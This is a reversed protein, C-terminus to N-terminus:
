RRTFRVGIRRLLIGFALAALASGAFPTAATGTRPLGSTSPSLAAQAGPVAPGAASAARTMEASPAPAPVPIPLAIGPQEGIGSSAATTIAAIPNLMQIAEVAPAVRAVEAAGSTINGVTGGSATLCSVSLVGAANLACLPSKGLQEDTGIETGNVKALYSHGRRESGVESHLVVVHTGDLVTVDAGDSAARGTSKEARHSAQSESALVQARVVKPVQARLAAASAQSSRSGSASNAAAHWPAVEVRAPQSSGTDVLSGDTEGDGKQTGGLNAVPQGGVSIVSAQASSGAPDASASTRSVDLLSGVQVAVGSAQGPPAPTLEAWVPASPLVLVGCASAAIFFIHRRM